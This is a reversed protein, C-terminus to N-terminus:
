SVTSALSHKHLKDEQKESFTKVCFLQRPCIKYQLEDPYTAFNLM